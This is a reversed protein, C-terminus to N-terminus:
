RSLLLGALAAAAAEFAIRWDTGSFVAGGSLEIGVHVMANQACGQSHVLMGDPDRLVGSRGGAGSMTDRTLPAAFTAAFFGEVRVPYDRPDSTWGVLKKGLAHMYGVEFATGPDMEPGRRFGDLCFIGGDVAHMLAIDAEVIRRALTAGPPIAELGIQNDLPSVGVLGHRDCVAKMAAFVADPDPAFVAPGALYATPRPSPEGARQIAAEAETM